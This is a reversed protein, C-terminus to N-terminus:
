KVGRLASLATTPLDPHTSIYTVDNLKLHHVKRYRSFKKVDIVGASHLFLKATLILVYPYMINEAYANEMYDLIYEPNTNCKETPHSRDDDLIPPMENYASVTLGTPVKEFAIGSCGRCTIDAQVFVRTVNEADFKSNIDPDMDYGWFRWYPKEEEENDAYFNVCYNGTQSRGQADTQIVIIPMDYPM